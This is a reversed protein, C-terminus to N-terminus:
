KKSFAAVTAELGPQLALFQKISQYERVADECIQPANTLAGAM